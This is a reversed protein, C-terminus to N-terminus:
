TVSVYSPDSYSQQSLDFSVSLRISKAPSCIDTFFEPCAQAFIMTSSEVILFILQASLLNDMQRRHNKDDM